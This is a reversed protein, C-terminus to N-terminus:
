QENFTLRSRPEMESVVTYAETVFSQSVFKTTYTLHAILAGLIIFLRWTSVLGDSPPRFHM